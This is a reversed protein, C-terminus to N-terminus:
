RPPRPVTCAIVQFGAPCDRQEHVTFGAGEVLERYGALDWAWAHAEYHWEDTETSPSSLVVFRAGTVAALRRLWAHPDALHEVVETCVIVDGLRGVLAELDAVIDGARVDRGMKAARARNADGLDYGFATGVGDLRALRELLSGDGAGLDIVTFEDAPIGGLLDSVLDVVMDLRERHGRQVEPPTWPHGAFYAPTTFEPVTGPDYLRWEM